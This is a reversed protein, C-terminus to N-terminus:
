TQLCFIEEYGKPMVKKYNFRNQLKIKRNIKYPLRTDSSFMFAIKTGKGYGYYRFETIDCSEVWSPATEYMMAKCEMYNKGSPYYYDRTVTM